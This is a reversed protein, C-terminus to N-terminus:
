GEPAGFFVPVGTKGRVEEAATAVAKRLLDAVGLLAFSWVVRKNEARVRLRVPVAYAGGGEFLPLAIVFGGPVELSEGAGKVAEEFLIRQGGTPLSVRSAYTSEVRLEIGRSLSLVQTPIAPEIDIRKLEEAAAAAEPMTPPIVERAHDEIWTAFATQDMAKGDVARWAQWERSLPFAYTARHQGFRPDSPGRHYDYVAQLTPSDTARAFVATGEDKFREVHAILSALTDLTASGKLREPATRHEDLLHKVSYLKVGIPLAVAQTAAADGRALDVMVPRASERVAAIIAAADTKSNEIAVPTAAPEPALSRTDNV